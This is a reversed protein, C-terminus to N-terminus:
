KDVEITVDSCAGRKPPAARGAPGPCIDHGRQAAASEGSHRASEGVRLERHHQYAHVIAQLLAEASEEKRVVGSAGERLAREHLARDETGTFVLVCAFSLCLLEPLFDLSLEGALDLDLLIVDPQVQAAIQLAAARDTAKGVVAMRPREGDILLELGWLIAPQDDVLLVGIAAAAPPCSDIVTLLLWM